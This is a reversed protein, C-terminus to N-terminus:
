ELIQMIKKHHNKLPIFLVLLVFLLFSFYNAMKKFVFASISSLTISFLISKISLSEVNFYFPHGVFSDRHRPCLL